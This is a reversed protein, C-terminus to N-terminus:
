EYKKEEMEKLAKEAEERTLFVTKGIEDFSVKWYNKSNKDQLWIWHDADSHVSTKELLYGDAYGDIITRNYIGFLDQGVKCPLVVLRGEEEATEYEALKKIMESVYECNGGGQSCLDCYTSCSIGTEERKRSVIGNYKIQTLRETM